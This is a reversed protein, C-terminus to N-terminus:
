GTVTIVVVVSTNAAVCEGVWRVKFCDILLDGLLIRERGIFRRCCEWKLLDLLWVVWSGSCGSCGAPDKRVDFRLRDLLM